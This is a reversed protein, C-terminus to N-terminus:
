LLIAEDCLLVPIGERVPYVRSGDETVLAETLSETVVDGAVNKLSGAAIASNLSALRESDAMKLAARTEPCCIIDLLKSDLM